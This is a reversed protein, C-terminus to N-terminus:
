RCNTFVSAASVRQLARDGPSIERIPRRRRIPAGSTSRSRRSRGASRRRPSSSARPRSSGARVASTTALLAPEGVGRLL